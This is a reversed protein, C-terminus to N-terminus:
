GLNRIVLQETEKLWLVAEPTHEGFAYLMLKPTKAFTFKFHLLSNINAEPLSELWLYNVV